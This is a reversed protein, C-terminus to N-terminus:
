ITVTNTDKILDDVNVKTVEAHDDNIYYPKLNEVYANHHILADM